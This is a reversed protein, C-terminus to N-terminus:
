AQETFSIAGGSNVTLIGKTDKILTPDTKAMNNMIRSFNFMGVSAEEYSYGRGMLFGLFMGEMMAMPAPSTFIEKTLKFCELSDKEIKILIKDYYENPKHEPM